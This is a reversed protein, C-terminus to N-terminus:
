YHWFSRRKLFYVFSLGYLVMSALYLIATLAISSPILHLATVFSRLAKVFLLGHIILLLVFSTKEGKKLGTYCLCSLVLVVIRFFPISYSVFLSTYSVDFIHTKMIRTFILIGSYVIEAILLVYSVLAAYRFGLEGDKMDYSIRIKETNQKKESNVSSGCNSCFSDTDKVEAGCVPCVKELKAGCYVCYSSGIKNVGGCVPCKMYKKREVIIDYSFVLFALLIM